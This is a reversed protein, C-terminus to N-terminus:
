SDTPTDAASALYETVAEIIMSARAAGVGKYSQLGEEGIELLQRPETYGDKALLAAVSPSVGPLRDITMPQPVPPTNYRDPQTASEPEPEPEHAGSLERMQGLFEDYTTQADQQAQQIVVEKVTLPAVPAAQSVPQPPPPSTRAIKEPEIVVSRQPERVERFWQPMAMMDVRLVYFEEGGGRHGYYRRTTPGYVPHQGRNPHTYLVRVLDNDQVQANPQPDRTMTPRVRATRSQKCGRCAMVEVEKFKDVLHNMLDQKIGRGIERRSGSYYRYVLLPEEVLMFAKGARAMRMWYDWDEWAPLSEDFGGIKYHFSHPTLSSIYCWFYPHKSDPQRTAKDYDYPAATNTITALKTRSDYSILEGKKSFSEAQIADCILHGRSDSYIISPVEEQGFAILMASLADPMLYDDADLFLLFQGRAIDAGRNRSYGAGKAGGTDVKRVFPYPDLAYSPETSDWVVIAEWQRLTQSELSDLADIVIGEHGPGVPIVVSIIPEDYQRVPHSHHKPTAISAFPHQGDYTYPHWSLWETGAIRGSTTLGGTRYYFLPEKTVQKMGFGASGIRLWFEADETGCGYPSYRQRYGGLRRWAERRYVCCTPVQNNGIVQQDFNCEHPWSGPKVDDAKHSVLMLGSYTLGLSRDQELPPILKELFTPHLTDDADLCCIYKADTVAIGHNRAHAVGMNDQRIFRIRSDSEMLPQIALRTADADHSGDDVIIIDLLHPYTQRMASQVAGTVLTAYNFCPIIIAATPPSPVMALEYVKAVKECASRWTWKKVMERGNAGLIDRYKLCYALGEALMDYDGPDALYGNVGHTILELTGGHAFGLVPIGSAMAELTGIGFTEKTTALYVNAKQVMEKM